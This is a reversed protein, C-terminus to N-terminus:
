AVDSTKIFYYLDPKYDKVAYKRVIESLDPKEFSPTVYQPVVNMTKIKNDQMSLVEIMAKAGQVVPPVSIKKIKLILDIVKM